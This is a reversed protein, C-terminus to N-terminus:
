RRLLHCRVRSPAGGRRRPRAADDDDVHVGVGAVGHRLLDAADGDCASTVSAASTARMNWVAYSSYPEISTENWLAPMEGGSSSEIRVVPMSAHSRTCRTLRM